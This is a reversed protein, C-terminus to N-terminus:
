DPPLDVGGIGEPDCQRDQDHCTGTRQRERGGGRERGCGPRQALLAQKNGAAMYQLAKGAGCMDYKVLGAGQCLAVQAQM